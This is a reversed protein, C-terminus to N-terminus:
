IHNAPTFVPQLLHTMHSKNVHTSTIVTSVPRSIGIERGRGQDKEKKRSGVAVEHATEGRSYEEKVGGQKPVLQSHFLVEVFQLGFYIEGALQYIDTLQQTEAVVFYSFCDLFM